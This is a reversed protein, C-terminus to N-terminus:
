ITKPQSNVCFKWIQLINQANDGTGPPQSVIKIQKIVDKNRFKCIHIACKLIVFRDCALLEEAPGVFDPDEGVQERLALIDDDVLGGLCALFGQDPLGEQLHLGGSLLEEGDLEAQQVDAAEPVEGEAEGRRGQAGCSVTRVIEGLRCLFQEGPRVKDEVPGPEVGAAFDNGGGPFQIIRVQTGSEQEGVPEPGAAAYRMDDHDVFELVDHERLVSVLCAADEFVDEFGQGPFEPSKSHHEPYGIVGAKQLTM